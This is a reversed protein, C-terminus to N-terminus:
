AISGFMQHHLDLKYSMICGCINHKVEATYHYISYTPILWSVLELSM